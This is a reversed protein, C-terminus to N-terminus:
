TRTSIHGFVTGSEPHNRPRSLASTLPRRPKCCTSLLAEQPSYSRPATLTPGPKRAFTVNLGPPNWSGLALLPFTTHCLSSPPHPLASPGSAGSLLLLFAASLLSSESHLVRVTKNRYMATQRQGTTLELHIAEALRGGGQGARGAAPVQAGLAPLQHEPHQPAAAISVTLLLRSPAGLPPLHQTSGARPGLEHRQGEWGLEQALGCHGHAGRGSRQGPPLHAREARPGPGGQAGCGGHCHLHAVPFSPLPLLPHDRLGPRIASGGRVAETHPPSGGPGWGRWAM